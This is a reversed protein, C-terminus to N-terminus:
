QGVTVFWQGISIAKAFQNQVAHVTPPAPGADRMVGPCGGVTSLPIHFKKGGGKKYSQMEVIILLQSLICIFARPIVGQRVAM